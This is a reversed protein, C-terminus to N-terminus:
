NWSIGNIAFFLLILSGDLNPSSFDGLKREPFDGWNRFAWCRNETGDPGVSDFEHLSLGTASAMSTLHKLPQHPINFIKSGYCCKLFPFSITM